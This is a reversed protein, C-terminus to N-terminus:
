WGVKSRMYAIAKEYAKTSTEYEREMENILGTAETMVQIMESMIPDYEKVQDISMTNKGFTFKDDHPTHHCYYRRMVIDDGVRERYKIEYELITPYVKNILTSDCLRDKQELIRNSKPKYKNSLFTACATMSSIVDDTLTKFKFDYHFTNGYDKKLTNMLEATQQEQQNIFSSSRLEMLTVSLVMTELISTHTITDTPEVSVIETINDPNGFNLDIYNKFERRVLEQPTKTCSIITFALMAMSIFRKM